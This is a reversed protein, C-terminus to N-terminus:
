QTDGTAKHPQNIQADQPGNPQRSITIGYRDKLAPTHKLWAELWASM